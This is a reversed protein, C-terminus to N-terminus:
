ILSYCKLRFLSKSSVLTRMLITVPDDLVNQSCKYLQFFVLAVTIWSSDRFRLSLLSFLSAYFRYEAFFPIRSRVVASRPATLLFPHFFPVTVYAYCDGPPPPTCLIPQLTLHAISPQGNRTSIGGRVKPEPIPRRDTVMTVM